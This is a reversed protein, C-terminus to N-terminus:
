GRAETSHESESPAGAACSRHSLPSPRLDRPASLDAIRRMQRVSAPSPACRSVVAWVPVTHTYVRIGMLQCTRLHEARNFM